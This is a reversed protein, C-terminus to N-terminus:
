RKRFTPRAGGGVRPGDTKHRYTIRGRTLDYPTMEVIVRDGVLSRIRNKKMKGATYALIEHDNDLKVRFRGEPLLEVILGDFEILEEKAM